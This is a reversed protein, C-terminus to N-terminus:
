LYDVMVPPLPQANMNRLDVSSPDWDMKHFHPVRGEPPTRRGSGVLRHSAMGMSLCAEGITPGIYRYLTNSRDFCLHELVLEHQIVSGWAESDDVIGLM